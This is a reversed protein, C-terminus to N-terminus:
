SANKLGLRHYVEILRKANNELEVEEMRKKHEQYNDLVDKVKLTFDNVDRSKFVITGEPRPVADSAVSPIKFYLAERLSVADGDTNTPRVFVDSKMLFPYFQYQRTIFLFNNEIGKEAIRQKMKNFYEYDGIDPLCFVFGIKPYYRKLNACLDICMDIGYLDQNNYFSIKFANASIVPNHSDIFDWVGKPIEAIDEEKVIPPIFTPIVDVRDPKIGKSVLLDRGKPNVCIVFDAHKFSNIVLWTIFRAKVGSAPKRLCSVAYPWTIDNGHWTVIYKKRKFPCLILGFYVRLPWSSGVNLHIIKQDCAHFLLSLLWTKTKEVPVVNKEQEKKPTGLDYITFQIGARELREKLRQVHMSIGGIPPPYPGIIAVKM